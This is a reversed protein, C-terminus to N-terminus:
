LRKTADAYSAALYWETTLFFGKGLFTEARWERIHAPNFDKFDRNTGHYATATKGSLLNQIFKNTDNDILTQNKETIYQLFTKM